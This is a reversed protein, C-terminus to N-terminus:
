WQGTLNVCSVDGLNSAPPAMCACKPDKDGIESPVPLALGLRDFREITDRVTSRALGTLRAIERMPVCAERHMRMVERVHRMKPKRTPM